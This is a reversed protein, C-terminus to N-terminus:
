IGEREFKKRLELAEALSNKWGYKKLDVRGNVVEIGDAELLRQQEGAAM